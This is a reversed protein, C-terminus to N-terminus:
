PRRIPPPSDGLMTKHSGGRTFFVHEATPPNSNNKRLEEVRFGDCTVGRHYLLRPEARTLNISGYREGGASMNTGGTDGFDPGLGLSISVLTGRAGRVPTTTTVGKGTGDLNPGLGLSNSVSTERGGKWHYGRRRINRHPVVQTSNFHRSGGGGM